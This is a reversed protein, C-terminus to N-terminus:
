HKCTGEGQLKMLNAKVNPYICGLMTEMPPHQHDSERNHCTRAWSLPTNNFKYFILSAVGEDTWSDPCGISINVDGNKLLIGKNTALTRIENKVCSTTKIGILQEFAPWRLIPREACTKTIDTISDAGSNILAYQCSHGLEHLFIERIGGNNYQTALTELTLHVSNTFRDYYDYSGVGQDVRLGTGSLKTKCSVNERCCAKLFADNKTLNKYDQNLQAIIKKMYSPNKSKQGTFGTLDSCGSTETKEICEKQVKECFAKYDKLCAVPFSEKNKGFTYYKETECESQTKSTVSKVLKLLYQDADQSQQGWSPLCFTAM